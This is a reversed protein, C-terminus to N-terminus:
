VSHTETGPPSQDGEALFLWERVQARISEWCPRQLFAGLLPQLQVSAVKWKVPVAARAGSPDAGLRRKQQWLSRADTGKQPWLAQPILGM